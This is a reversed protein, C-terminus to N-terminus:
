ANRQLIQALVEKLKTVEIPKAIHENMGVAFAKKRDEEFANATMAIIPINRAYESGLGRIAITADYGNMLPMQIDMLILDYKGEQANRIKEVVETGDVASDVVFGDEELIERAIERNMENDEALLISNGSFDYSKKKEVEEANSDYMNCLIKRLDSPFLPKSIFGTVGAQKAKEEIDAWDYATLIIIAPKDGAIERIRRATDIGNLQPMQWDIIYLDFDEGSNKSERVKELAGEGSACWTSVMGMDRLMNTISNCSTLDDDVVFARLGQVDHMKEPIANRKQLKFEFVIRTNTGIGEESKIEISGGMLDVIKKTITMGLGTGEIGSVTTSNVRTFPNFITMLFERSMGIGNDSILFEYTGYGDSSTGKQSINISIHGGAKTYKVSNSLVNLLVQKLRLKDCIIDEDIVNTSDINFSMRKAFVEAQVIEKLSHVIESLNEPADSITMKGSEIRSMDLVDNILSLLHHSARNIKDLYDTLIERSEVHSSALETYGIIANMPTRIDHSMNNLFVTKARNAAEAMDLAKKLTEKQETENRTVDDVDRYGAIIKEEGDIDMLVFKGQYYLIGDKTVGRFKTYFVHKEKLRNYLDSLRTDKLFKERDEKFVFRQALLEIRDSYFENIDNNFINGAFKETCKFQEEKGTTPTIYSIYEYDEGLAGLIARERMEKHFAKDNNLIAVIVSNDNALSSNKVYKAQLWLVCGEISVRFHVFYTSGDGVKELVTSPKTEELFRDYDEPIILTDAMMKIRKQYDNEEKWGSIQTSFMESVRFHEEKLTDFDVKFVCEYDTSLVQVLKGLEKVRRGEIQEIGSVNQHTGEVRTGKDFSYNRIGSCRIMMTSGDPANWPYLIEVYKGEIMKSFYENVEEYYDPDVGEYWIRYMEEPSKRETLGILGLMVDDVYLHNVGDGYDEVAWMGIKMEKGIDESIPANGLKLTM